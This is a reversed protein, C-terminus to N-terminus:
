TVHLVVPITQSSCLRDIGNEFRLQTEESSLGTREAHEWIVESDPYPDAAHAHLWRKLMKQTMVAYRCQQNTSHMMHPKNLANVPNLSAPQVHVCCNPRNPTCTIYNNLFSTDIKEFLGSSLLGFLSVHGIMWTITSRWYTVRGLASIRLEYLHIPQILLESDKAPLWSM